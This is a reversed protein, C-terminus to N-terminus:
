RSIDESNKPTTSKPLFLIQTQANGLLEGKRDYNRLLADRFEQNWFYPDEDKCELDKKNVVVLPAERREIFSVIDDIPRNDRSWVQIFGAVDVFYTENESFVALAPDEVFIVKGKVPWDRVQALVEPMLTVKHHLDKILDVMILNSLLIMPTILCVALIPASEAFIAMMWSLGIVVFFLHNTSSYMIGLAYILIPATSAALLAPLLVRARRKSDKERFVWVIFLPVFAIFKGWDAGIWVLHKWLLEFTFPLKSAFTMHAIFGGGTIVQLFLLIVGCMLTFVAGYVFGQLFRRRLFLFLVIVIAMLASPQKTYTALVCFVLSPLYAVAIRRLSDFSLGALELADVRKREHLFLELAVMSLAVSFMDVRALMSWSWFPLFSALSIMAIVAPWRSSVSSRYIRYCVVISVIFSIMSAVRMTWYNPGLLYQMPATLLFYGPSYLIVHFPASTLSAADYINHGRALEVAAWLCYGEYQISLPASVALFWSYLYTVLLCLGASGTAGWLLIRKMGSAM